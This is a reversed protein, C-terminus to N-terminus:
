RLAELCAACNARSLKLRLHANEGLTSRIRERLRTDQLEWQAPACGNLRGQRARMFLRGQAHADHGRGKREKEEAVRTRPADGSCPSSARRPGESGGSAAGNIKTGSTRQTPPHM